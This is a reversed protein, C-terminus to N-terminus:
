YLALWLFPLTRSNRVAPIWCSSKLLRSLSERAAPLSLAAGAALAWDAVAGGAAGATGGECGWGDFM